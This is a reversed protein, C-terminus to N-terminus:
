KNRLFVSDTLLITVSNNGRYYARTRLSIDVKTASTLDANNYTFTLSDLKDAIQKTGSPRSSGSGLEFLQYLNTGNTYYILYDYTGAVVNGSSNLTPIQLVMTTAGTTYTTGNVVRSTQFASGQPIYLTMSNLAKRAAGTAAIDAQELNYIKIQWDYINLIGLLLVSFLFLLIVVEVLTFGKENAHRM